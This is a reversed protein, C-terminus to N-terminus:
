FSNYDYSNKNQNFLKIRSATNFILTRNIVSQLLVSSFSGIGNSIIHQNQVLMDTIEVQKQQGLYELVLPFLTYKYALLILLVCAYINIQFLYLFIFRSSSATKTEHTDTCLGKKQKNQIQFSTFKICQKNVNITCGQDGTNSLNSYSDYNFSCIVFIM